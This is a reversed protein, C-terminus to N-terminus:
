RKNLAVTIRTLTQRISESPCKRVTSQKLGSFNICSQEDNVDNVAPGLRRHINEASPVACFYGVSGPCLSSNELYRPLFIEIEEIFLPFKSRFSGPFTVLLMEQYGQSINESYNWINKM